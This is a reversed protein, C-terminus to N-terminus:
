ARRAERVIGESIKRKLASMVAAKSEDFAPRMFPYAPARSTGREVLHAYRTPNRFVTRGSRLTVERKFGTRPGVYAVIVGSRRYTKMRRGLSKRLLGTDKPARAKVAQLIIKSAENLAPRIVKLQAARPLRQVKALLRKLQVDDFTAKIKIAM